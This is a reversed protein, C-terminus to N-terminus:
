PYALPVKDTMVFEHEKDLDFFIAERGEKFFLKAGNTGGLFIKNSVDPFLLYSGERLGIVGTRNMELFEAIRQERTEGMHTSTPDADIFHPNIQFKFFNLGNLGKEPYAIPMDNTTCITKCALNTGASSGLYLAENDEVAEKIFNMWQFTQLYHLLRFTNGGGVFMAGFDKVQNKSKLSEASVVSIGLKGFYDKVLKTYSNWDARDKAFPFFLIPTSLEEFFKRLVETYSELFGGGHVYSSSLLLINKKMNLINIFSSFIIECNKGYFKAM